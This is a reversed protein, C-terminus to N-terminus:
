QRMEEYVEEIDAVGYIDIDDIGDETLRLTSDELECADDYNDYQTM